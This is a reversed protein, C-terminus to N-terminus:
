ATRGNSPAPPAAFLHHKGAPLKEIGHFEYPGHEADAVDVWAVPKVSVAAAPQPATPLWEQWSLVAADDLSLGRLKAWDKVLDAVPGAEATSGVEIVKSRTTMYGAFDFIAGAVVLPLGDSEQEAPQEALATRLADSLQRHAPSLADM